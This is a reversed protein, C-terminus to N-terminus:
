HWRKCTGVGEKGQSGVLQVRVQGIFPSALNRWFTSRMCTGWFLFRWGMLVARRSCFTRIAHKSPSPTMVTSPNGTSAPSKTSGAFTTPDKPLSPSPWPPNLLSPTLRRPLPLPLSSPLLLPLLLPSPLLPSPLSPFPSFLLVHLHLLNNQENFLM